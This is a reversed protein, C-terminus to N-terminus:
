AIDFENPKPPVFATTSNLRTYGDPVTGPLVRAARPVAPPARAQHGRLPPPDVDLTLGAGTAPAVTIAGETM